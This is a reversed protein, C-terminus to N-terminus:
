PKFKYEFPTFSGDTPIVVSKIGIVDLIKDSDSNEVIHGTCYLISYIYKMFIFIFAYNITFITLKYKKNPKNLFAVFIFLCLVHYLDVKNLGSIVIALLLLGEMYPFTLLLFYYAIYSDPASMLKM